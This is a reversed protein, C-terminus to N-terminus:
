TQLPTMEAVFEDIFRALSGGGSPVSPRVVFKSLGAEVFAEIMRRADAWTAPSL